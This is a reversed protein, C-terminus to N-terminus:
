EGKNFEALEKQKLEADRAVERASDQPYGRRLLALLIREYLSITDNDVTLLEDPIYKRWRRIHHLKDFEAMDTVENGILDRETSFGLPKDSITHKQTPTQVNVLCKKNHKFIESIIGDRITDAEDVSMAWRVIPRPSHPVSAVIQYRQTGPMNAPSQSISINATVTM